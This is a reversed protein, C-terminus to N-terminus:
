EALNMVDFMSMQSTQLEAEQCFKVARKYYKPVLEVGVGHRNDLLARYPVSGIGAFYDLVREGAKSWRRICRSIFDLQLPCIHREYPNDKAIDNNLVDMRRIDTWLYDNQINQTLSPHENTRSLEGKRDLGELYAIHGEYDYGEQEWEYLLRKGNSRWTASSDIQHMALSYDGSHSIREDSWMGGKATPTHPKRFILGYEPQGIHITSADKQFRGFALRNTANNERVVDTHITIRGVFLFGHKEMADACRDSFREIRFHGNNKTGYVIRDKAHVVALRGPITVRYLEPLLYDMQEFFEKDSQVNGFDAVHASYMYQDSFPWSSVSLHISNSPFTNLVRVSDGNYMAWRPTITQDIVM